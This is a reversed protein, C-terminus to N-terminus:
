QYWQNLNVLYEKYWRNWFDTVIKQTLRWRDLGVVNSNTYDEDAINLLPEGVLFHGPTLPLPDNPDDSLLSIPRSNLCAEVQALVTSMEEYTLTSNGVVKKLHTKTGRVSSEWLGGFNPSHPPIYHWNTRELSLLEAIEGPLSSKASNFMELMQKDVHALLILAM